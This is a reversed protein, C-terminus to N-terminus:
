GWTMSYARKGHDGPEVGNEKNLRFGAFSRKLAVNMLSGDVYGNVVSSTKYKRHRFNDQESTREAYWNKSLEDKEM